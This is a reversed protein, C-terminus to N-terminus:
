KFLLNIYSDVQDRDRKDFDIQKIKKQYYSYNQEMLTLANILSESSNHQFIIGSDYNKVMDINCGVKDSVIVPLGYYLAEEVVLGWPESKSPLIFCDHEKYIDYLHKNDVFGYFTINNKARDKLLPELVGTGLISLKKGTQNFVDILLEINKLSILRGTYIYRLDKENKITEFLPVKNYLGVGGTIKIDGKFGIKKFIEAHPIGSPFSISYRSFILWKIFGTLGTLKSEYISSECVIVNKRRPFLFSIIDLEILDWSGFILYCYEVQKIIAYLKKFTKIKDRLEVKCENILEYDFNITLSEDIIVQDTKGIFVAYVRSKKALENYLAIKYFSPVNSIFVFDYKNKM